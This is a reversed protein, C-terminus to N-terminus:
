ITRKNGSLLDQMLGRKLSLLNEKTKDNTLIKTDITTIIESIERQEGLSPVPIHIGRIVTQSINPQAAGRALSIMEQTKSSLYYYVFDPVFRENPLIGCVAQNTASEFNLFGVQGATAGYMAVLVTNRPFLKASSEKLGLETIFRSAEHLRGQRVEGSTLWPITGESYYQSKSKLPTGGSSTELVDGLRKVEWESPLKGLETDIFESHGIGVAFLRQMLGEKLRESTAIIEETKAIEEDVAGLIEAIRKQEEVSDPFTIEVGLFDRKSLNFRTSGKAHVAIAKRFDPGRFLYGGFEPDLKGKEEPRFVFCFSNLYLGDPVFTVVSSMGVEEPTESSTTFLYDGYQLATQKEGDKVEVLATTDQKLHPNSFVNMYTVFPKGHGFHTKNKGTLGGLTTGLEALKVRQWGTPTGKQETRTKM